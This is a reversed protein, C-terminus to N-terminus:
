AATYLHTYSVAEVGLLALMEGAIQRNLENDEAVLVRLGYFGTQDPVETQTDLIPFRRNRALRVTVIFRTGKAPESEVDIKGDLMNLIDLVILHTYSVAEFWARSNQRRNETLFRITESSFPM